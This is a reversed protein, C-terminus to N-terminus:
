SGDLVVTTRESGTMTATIRNKTDAINRFTVTTGAIDSKNFQVAAILRLMEAASLGSEIVFSDWVAQSIANATLTVSIPTTQMYAIAFSTVSSSFTATGSATLSATAGAIASSSFTINGAAIADIVAKINATSSFTIDANAVMAAVAIAISSSSFTISTNAVGNIGASGPVPAATFVIPSENYSSVAGANLPLLWSVPHLQGWELSFLTTSVADGVFVNYRDTKSFNSRMGSIAGGGLHRLPMDM